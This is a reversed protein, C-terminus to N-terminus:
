FFFTLISTNWVKTQQMISVIRVKSVGFRTNGVNFM